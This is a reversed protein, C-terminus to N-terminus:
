DKLIQVEEAVLVGTSVVLGSASEGVDSRLGLVEDDNDLAREPQDAPGTCRARSKSADQGHHVINSNELAPGRKTEHVRQQVIRCPREVIDGTAAVRATTSRAERGSSTPVRYTRINATFKQM